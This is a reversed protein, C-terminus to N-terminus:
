GHRGGKQEIAIERLKTRARVTIQDITNERKGLIRAIESTVLGVLRLEMVDRQDSSLRDLQSLMWDLETSDVAAEEPSIGRAPLREHDTIPTALRTRRRRLEDTCENRAITFLWARYSGPGHRFRFSPLANWIKIMVQQAVDEADPWSRLRGFCFTLLRSEHAALLHEFQAPDQQAARVLKEDDPALDPPHEGKANPTRGDSM